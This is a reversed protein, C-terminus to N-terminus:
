KSSRSSPKATGDHAALAERALEHGPQIQLATRLWDAGEDKMGLDMMIKGAEYRLNADNPTKLLQRTIEDVRDQQARIQKSQGFLENSRAQDGSQAYAQSLSYRISAQFPALRAAAELKDIAERSRGEDGDIQGLESLIAAHEAVTPSLTLARNLIPVAAPGQALRRHCEALGILVNPTAVGAALCREYEQKAEDVRNSDKLVDALRRRSESHKPDIELIARYETEEGSRNDIRRCIDARWFKPFVARPQWESWASLCQWADKLRYTKLYGIALAEYIEEAADDGVDRTMIVKLRADVADVNGDQAITLLSQREVDDRSWGLQLARQLPSSVRDLHGSRREAVALLYHAEANNPAFSTARNLLQLAVAPKATSLAHRASILQRWFWVQPSAIAVTVVLLAVIVLRRRTKTRSTQAGEAPPILAPRIARTPHTVPWLWSM